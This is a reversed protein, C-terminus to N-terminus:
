LISGIADIALALFNKHTKQAYLRSATPCGDQYSTASNANFWALGARYAVEPKNHATAILQAIESPQTRAKREFAALHRDDLRKLFVAINHLAFLKGARFHQDGRLLAVSGPLRLSKPLARSMKSAGGIAGGDGVDYVAKSTFQFFGFSTLPDHLAPISEVYRRGANRLLFELYGRGSEGATPFLETMGYSILMRGDVLACVRKLLTARVTDLSKTKWDYFYSRSVQAWDLSDCVLKAQAGAIAQYKGLSMRQPDMREYEAVLMAGTDHAVVKKTIAYKRNWVRNIQRNWDVALNRPIVGNQGIYWAYLNGAASGALSGTAFTGAHPVVPVTRLMRVTESQDTHSATMRTAPPIQMRVTSQAARYEQATSSEGLTTLALALIVHKYNM